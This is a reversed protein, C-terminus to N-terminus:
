YKSSKIKAELDEALAVGKQTKTRLVTKTEDIARMVNEFTGRSKEYSAKFADALQGTFAGSDVAQVLATLERYAAECEECEAGMKGTLAVLAGEEFAINM